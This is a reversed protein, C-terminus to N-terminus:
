SRFRNSVPGNILIFENSKSKLIELSKKFCNDIYVNSKHTIDSFIEKHSFKVNIINIVNNKAEYYNKVKNLPFFNKLKKLKKELLNKDGIIIIKKKFKKKKIFYKGLIESFVSYPEGLVILIYKTNM